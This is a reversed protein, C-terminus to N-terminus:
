ESIRCRKHATRLEGLQLTAGLVRGVARHTGCGARRNINIYCRSCLHKDQKAMCDGSGGAARVLRRQMFSGLVSQRM